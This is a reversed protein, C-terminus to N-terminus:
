DQDAKNRAMAFRMLLGALILGGGALTTWEPSQYDIHTRWAIFVWVPVLVPELLTLGSAEHSTVSQLGRAFLAYPIGMQVAGFGFLYIWQQGSPFVQSQLLYPFFLIATTAHFLFVIWASDLDRLRRISLVVGAFFVGSLLGLFLGHTLGGSAQTLVILAVGIAALVLLFWDGSDPKEQFWLWSVLFVWVPSTYQLWIALTAEGLVMAGLFAWNMAAFAIVGPVLRWTWTVKRVWFVLVLSAFVARWFVLLNGRSAQPWDEFIPAKAFIGSTSWLVVAVIVLFRGRWRLQLGRSSEYELRDNGKSM